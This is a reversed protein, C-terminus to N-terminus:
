GHRLIEIAVGPDRAKFISTGAVLIDAGAERLYAANATTVGGDVSLLYSLSKEKRLQNLQAIKDICTPILEQGGYGPNVTMVLVLDVMPLLESIASIPTSPVLSIGAKIGQKKIHQVLGHAHITSEIHFTIAHAGAQAFSDIHTQPHDVMLHVDLPLTSCSAIAAVMQSGFSIPPVFTGDMVDLHWWDAGADIIPSLSTSIQAFDAALVSPAIIIHSM